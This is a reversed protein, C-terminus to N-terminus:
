KLLKILEVSTILHKQTHPNSFQTQQEIAKPLPMSCAFKSFLYRNVKHYRRMITEIYELDRFEMMEPLYLEMGRVEQKLHKDWFGEEKVEAQVGTAGRIVKILQIEKQTKIKKEEM